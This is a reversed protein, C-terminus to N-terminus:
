KTPPSTRTKDLPKGKSMVNMARAPNSEVERLIRAPTEPSLWRVKGTGVDYIAGVIAVKKKNVLERTAPSKMFIDRIGQWVNEEVGFPALAKESLKPHQKRAKRVAPIIKNILPPINRQLPSANGEMEAIAANVAGCQSHGLVVLLPTNVHCLGYEISGIEDIGCVNGAVRIVFINMVGADFLREVPVRSDSCAIVTAYAHDGQSETGAQFLRKRDTHTHTPKGAAFRQNGEQLMNQAQTPSPQSSAQISIPVLFLFTFAIGFLTITPIAQM